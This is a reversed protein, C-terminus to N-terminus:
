YVAVKLNKVSMGLTGNDVASPAYIEPNLNINTIIYDSPSASIYRYKSFARCDDGTPAHSCFENARARLASLGQQFEAESIRYDFVRYDGFPATQFTVSGPGPHGWRTGGTLEGLLIAINTAGPYPGDFHVREGMPPRLDFLAATNWLGTGTTRDEFLMAVGVYAQAAGTRTATPIKAEFRFSLERGSTAYPRPSASRDWWIAPTIPVVPAAHPNSNGNIWLGVEGNRAQVASAGPTGNVARQYSGRESWAGPQFGTQASLDNTTSTLVRTTNTRVVWRNWPLEGLSLEGFVNSDINAASINNPQEALVAVPTAPSAADVFTKPGGRLAPNGDSGWSGDARIDLAFATLTHTRGDRLESPLTWEFGHAINGGCVGALDGRSRDALVGGVYVGGERYFHIWLPQSFRDGDCAWGTAKSSGANDFYGDPAAAQASQSLGLFGLVLAASGALTQTQKSM